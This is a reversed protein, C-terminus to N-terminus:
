GLCDDKDGWGRILPSDADAISDAFESPWATSGFAITSFTEGAKFRAPAEENGLMTLYDVLDAADSEAQGPHRARAIRKIADTNFGIQRAELCLDRRKRDIEKNAADLERLEAIYRRLRATIAADDHEIDNM